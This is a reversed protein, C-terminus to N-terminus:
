EQLVLFMNSVVAIIKKKAIRSFYLYVGRLCMIDFKFFQQWTINLIGYISFVFKWSIIM